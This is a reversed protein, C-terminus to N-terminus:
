LVSDDDDHTEGPKSLSCSSPQRSPLAARPRRPTPPHPPPTNEELHLWPPPTQMNWGGSSM